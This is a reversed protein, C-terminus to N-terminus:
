AELFIFIHLFSREHISVKRLNHFLRLSLFCRQSFRMIKNGTHTQQEANRFNRTQAERELEPQRDITKIERSRQQAAVASVAAAAVAAAALGVSHADDIFLFLECYHIRLPNCHRHLYHAAARSRFLWLAEIGFTQFINHILCTQISCFVWM